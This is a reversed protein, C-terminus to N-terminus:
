TENPYEVADAAVCESCCDAWVNLPVRILNGCTRANNCPIWRFGPVDGAIITGSQDYIPGIIVAKFYAASEALQPAHILTREKDM